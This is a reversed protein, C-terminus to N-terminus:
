VITSPELNLLLKDRARKLKEEESLDAVPPTGFADNQVTWHAPTCYVQFTVDFQGPKLGPRPLTSTAPKKSTADPMPHTLSFMAECPRKWKIKPDLPIPPESRMTSKDEVGGGGSKKNDERREWVTDTPIAFGGFSTM